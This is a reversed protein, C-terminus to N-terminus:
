RRAAKRREPPTAANRAEAEERKLERQIRASGRAQKGHYRNPM